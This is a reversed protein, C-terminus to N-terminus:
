LSNEMTITIIETKTRDATFSFELREVVEGVSQITLRKLKATETSM